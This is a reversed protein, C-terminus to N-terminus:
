FRMRRFVPFPLARVLRALAGWYGPLYRRGRARGLDAVVREALRRPDAKPFLLPRGFALNTDVYGPTYLVVAIGQAELGHRLSEFLSELGRKAAAYVVNRSRGREAAVSSFGVIAGRGAALLRPLVVSVVSSVALLNIRLLEEARGPSLRLDDDDQSTGLPLLLGEVRTSAGLAADVAAALGAHDFADHAVAKVAVGHMEALDRALADLDRADSSVVLLDKGRRALAEALARGLGSSAGVVVYSM